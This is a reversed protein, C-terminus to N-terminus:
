VTSSPFDAAKKQKKRWKRSERMALLLFVIAAHVTLFIMCYTIVLVFAGAWVGLIRKKKEKWTVPIECLLSVIKRIWHASVSMALFLFSLSLLYDINLYAWIQHHFQLFYTEPFWLIAASAFLFALLLGGWPSSKM